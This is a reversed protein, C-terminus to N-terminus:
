VILWAKSVSLTRVTLTVVLKPQQDENVAVSIRSWFLRWPLQEVRRLYDHLDAYSGQLTMEFTHQYLQREADRPANTSPEAGGGAPDFRQVPLTRLSVLQLGRSSGLVEELLRATREAPVLGRQIEGMTKDIEALQRRLADREARRAVLPDQTPTKLSQLTLVGKQADALQAALRRKKALSPELAMVYLLVVAALLVSAFGIARERVALANFRKALRELQAKM